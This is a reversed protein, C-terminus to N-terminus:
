SQVQRLLFFFLGSTSIRRVKLNYFAFISPFRRWIASIECMTLFNPDPFRIVNLMYFAFFDVSFTAL